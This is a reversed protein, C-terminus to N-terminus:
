YEGLDKHAADFAEQEIDKLTEDCLCEIEFEYDNITITEIEFEASCGPYNLTQPEAPSFMGEVEAEVGLLKTKFSYSM